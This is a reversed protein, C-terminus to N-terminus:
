AVTLPWFKDGLAHAAELSTPVAQTPGRVTLNAVGRARDIEVGVHSYAIRDAEIKRALPTLAIGKAGKPRDSRAAIDRARAAVPTTKPSAAAATVPTNAARQELAQIAKQQDEVQKRQADLAVALRGLLDAQQQIVKVLDTSALPVEVKAVAPVDVKAAAPAAVKAAVPVEAKAAVPAAVKATM